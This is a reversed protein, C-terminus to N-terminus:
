RTQSKRKSAARRAKRNGGTPNAAGDDAVGEGGDGKALEPFALVLADTLKASADQLGLADFVGSAEKITMGEHHEQLGAWLFTVATRVRFRKEDNLEDLLDAFSRNMEDELLVLAYTGFQLTYNTVKGDREVKLAMEGVASNAM